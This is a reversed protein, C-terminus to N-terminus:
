AAYCKGEVVKLVHEDQYENQSYIVAAVTMVRSSVM